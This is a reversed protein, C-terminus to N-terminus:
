RQWRPKGGSSVGTDGDDENNANITGRLIAQPNFSGFLEDLNPPVHNIPEVSADTRHWPVVNRATFTATVDVGVVALVESDRSLIECGRVEKELEIGNEDTARLVLDFSGTTNFELPIALFVLTGAIGRRGRVFSRPDRGEMSYNPTTERTITFHLEAVDAEVGRQTAVINVGNFASYHRSPPTTHGRPIRITRAHPSRAMNM